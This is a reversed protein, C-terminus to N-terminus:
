QGGGPAFLTNQEISLLQQQEPSQDFNKLWTLLNPFSSAEASTIFWSRIRGVKQMCMLRGELTHMLDATLSVRIAFWHGKAGELLVVHNVPSLRLQGRMFDSAPNM